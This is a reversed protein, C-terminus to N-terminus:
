ILLHNQFSYNAIKASIKENRKMANLANLHNLHHVDTGAFQYYNGKLYSEAKHMEDKGYYGSLSLLNLQFEFGVNAFKDMQDEGSVFNYREPHALIPQYGKRRIEFVLEHWMLPLALYPFEVLVYKKEDQNPYLLLGKEIEQYFFDDMMYEAVYNKISCEEQIISFSHHISETTNSHLGSAIHPSPIITSFGLDHLGQILQLAQSSDKAGDDIGPLVHNHIDVSLNWEQPTPISKKFFNFM